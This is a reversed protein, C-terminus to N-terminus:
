EDDADSAALQMMAAIMAENEVSARMNRAVRRRSDAYLLLAGVVSVIVAVAAAREDSVDLGFIVGIAIVAKAIVVRDIPTIDPTEKKPLTFSFDLDKSNANSESMPAKGCLKLFDSVTNFDLPKSM